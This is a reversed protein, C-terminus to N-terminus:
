GSLGLRQACASVEDQARALDSSASMALVIRDAGQVALREARDRDIRDVAHGLTLEIQAPDRGVSRAEDRM